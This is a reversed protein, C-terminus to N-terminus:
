IAGATRRDSGSRNARRLADHNVYANEVVLKRRVAAPKGKITITPDPRRIVNVDAPSWVGRAVPDERVVAPRPNRSPTPAPRRKMVASPEEVPSVAPYPSWASLPRRSPHHPPMTRAPYTPRRHRWLDFLLGPQARSPVLHVPDDFRL